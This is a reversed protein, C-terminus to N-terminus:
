LGDAAIADMAAKVDPLLAAAAAVVLLAERVTAHDGTELGRLAEGISCALARNPDAWADAHEKAEAEEEETIGQEEEDPFHEWLCDEALGDQYEKVRLLARHVERPDCRDRVMLHVAEIFVRAKRDKFTAERVDLFPALGTCAFARDNEGFRLVAVNPGAGTHRHSWPPNWCLVATKCDLDPAKARSREM